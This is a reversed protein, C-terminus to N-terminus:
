DIMDNHTNPDRGGLSYALRASRGKLSASAAKACPLEYQSAHWSREYENPPVFRPVEVGAGASPQSGPRAAFARTACWSAAELQVPRPTSPQTLWTRSSTM